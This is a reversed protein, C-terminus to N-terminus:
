PWMPLRRQWSHPRWSPPGAAVVLLPILWESTVCLVASNRGQDQDIPQVCVIKIVTLVGGGVRGCAGDSVRDAGSM